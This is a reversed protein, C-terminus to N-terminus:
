RKSEVYVFEEVFVEGDAKVEGVDLHEPCDGDFLAQGLPTVFRCWTATGDALGPVSPVPNMLAQGGRSPGFAPAALEVVALKSQNDVPIAVSSPRVGAMIWIEGGRLLTLLADAKTDVALDSFDPKM